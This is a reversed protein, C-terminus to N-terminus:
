SDGPKREVKLIRFSKSTSHRSVSFGGGLQEAMWKQLSDAGLNKQVV